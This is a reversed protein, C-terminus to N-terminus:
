QGVGRMGGAAASRRDGRQSPLGQQHEPYAWPKAGDARRDLIQTQIAADLEDVQGSAHRFGELETQSKERKLFAFFATKFSM